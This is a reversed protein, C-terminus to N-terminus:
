QVDLYHQLGAPLWQLAAAWDVDQLISPHLSQPVSFSINVAQWQGPEWKCPVPVAPVAPLATAPFPSKVRVLPCPVCMQSFSFSVDTSFNLCSIDVSFSSLPQISIQLLSISLCYIDTDVPSWRVKIRFSWNLRIQPRSSASLSPWFKTIFILDILLLCSVSRAKSWTIIVAPVVASVTNMSRSLAWCNLQESWHVMM